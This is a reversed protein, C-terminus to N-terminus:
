DLLASSAKINRFGPRPLFRVERRPAVDVAEGETRCEGLLLAVVGDGARTRGRLRVAAAADHVEAPVNGPAVEVEAVAASRPPAPRRM